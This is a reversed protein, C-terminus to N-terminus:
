EPISYECFNCVQGAQHYMVMAIHLTRYNPCKGWSHGLIHYGSSDLKLEQVLAAVEEPYYELTLLYSKEEPVTCNNPNEGETVDKCISSLGTGM